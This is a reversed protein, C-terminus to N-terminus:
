SPRRRSRAGHRVDARRADPQADRPRDELEVGGVGSEVIQEDLERHVHGEGHRESEEGLRDRIRGLGRSSQRGPRRAAPPVARQGEEDQGAGRVVDPVVLPQGRAHGHDVIGLPEVDHDAHEERHQQQLGRAAVDAGREDDQGEDEHGVREHPGQSGPKTPWPPSVNRLSTSWCVSVVWPIKPMGVSTEAVNM